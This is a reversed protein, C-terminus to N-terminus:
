ESGSALAQLMLDLDHRSYWRGRAMVGEIDRLRGIRELPNGNVLLLDARAGPAIRGFELPRRLLVAPARTAARLADVPALGSEVLLELERHLSAGPVVLPYGMADTGVVLPVGARHLAGALAQMFDTYRLRPSPTRLRRWRAQVDPQMYDIAADAVLARRGAGGVADYAVLTTQVSIGAARVMGAVHDIGRPTSRWVVPVWFALAAWALAIGAVSAVAAQVRAGGTTEHESWITVTKLVIATTAVAVLLLMATFVVRLTGSAFYPGGPLFFIACAAAIAAALLQLGALERVRSVAHPAPPLPRWRNRVTALGTTVAIVTLTAFSIATVVLWHLNGLMPLFYVHSLEGIHALSQRAELLAELGLNVPAHGTLPIGLERAADNLRLYAPRSLGETTLYGTERSYVPRFKILDYGARVQAELESQVEDPTNVRPENVFEGSTYITPGVLEGREIRRRWELHETLGRMNIVSTVGHALYLPGDGFDGRSTGTRTGDGDLHVHSDALGPVLYRGGGDVVIADDPVPIRDRAGMSTIRGGRVIVVQDPRVRDDVMTITNVNIFAVTSDGGAPRSLPPQAYAMPGVGFGLASVLGLVCRWIRLLHM